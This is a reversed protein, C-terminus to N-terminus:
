FILETLYTSKNNALIYASYLVQAHGSFTKLAERLYLSTRTSWLNAHPKLIM